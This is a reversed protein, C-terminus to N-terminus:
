KRGRGRGRERRRVGTEKGKGRQRTGGRPVIVSMEGKGEGRTQRGKISGEGRRGEDRGAFM